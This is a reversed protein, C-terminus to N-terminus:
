WRPQAARSRAARWARRHRSNITAQYAGPLPFPGPSDEPAAGNRSM